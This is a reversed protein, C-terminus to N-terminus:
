EAGDEAEELLLTAAVAAYQILGRLNNVCASNRVMGGTRKQAQEYVCLYNMADIMEGHFEELPNGVFPVDESDRYLPRGQKWKRRMAEKLSLKWLPLGADANHSM